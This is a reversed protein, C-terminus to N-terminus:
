NEALLWPRGDDGTLFAFGSISRHIREVLTFGFGNWEWLSLARASASAAYETEVAALDAAGDGNWDAARFALVPEALASGAWLERYRDGAWGWLIIHCSRNRADHFGSIRGGHPQVADVPWPAFPRWVLLVVEPNGDRNLDAIQADSVEWAGPSTWFANGDRVVRVTGGSLELREFKGDGDLDATRVTEAPRFSPPPASELWGDATWRLIRLNSHPAALLFVGSLLILIRRLPFISRSPNM